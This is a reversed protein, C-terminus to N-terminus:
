KLEGQEKDTKRSLSLRATQGMGMTTQAGVGGYFSFDALLNLIRLWKDPVSPLAEFELTGTIGIRKYDRFNLMRTKLDYGSVNVLKDLLEWVKTKDASVGAKEQWIKMEDQFVLIANTFPAPAYKLWKEALSYFVFHPLPFLINQTGDRFGTPSVFRFAIKRPIDMTEESWKQTLEQYSTQRAWRHKENETIIEQVDFFVGGIKLLNIQKEQIRQLCKSLTEDLSTIRMEFNQGEEIILQYNEMQRKGIIHSVTFPKYRALEHLQWSLFAETEPLNKKILDLFAAHVLDGHTLPIHGEGQAELKLVLSLLM